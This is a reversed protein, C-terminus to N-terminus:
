LQLKKVTEYWEEFRNYQKAFFEGYKRALKTDAIHIMDKDIFFDMDSGTQFEGDLSGGGTCVVNSMLHKFCMLQRHSHKLLDQESCAKGEEILSLPPSVFKTLKEVPMTTYLKLFSRMNPINMQAVVEGRFARWQQQQPQASLAEIEEHKMNQIDYTFPSVPSLFRPCGACFQREFTDLDGQSMKMMNESHKLKLQQLVSEDMRQPHLVMCISLLAYMKEMQNNMQRLQYNRSSQFSTKTRGIYVLVDSFTRIADEYRRMMMYAFGVYYYTSVQCAPVRSLGKRNLELHQLVKIAQYYDGLQSHLRLLAILSFYGLMKYLPRSGYEGAVEDPNGGKSFVELQQNINSKQVLSHLVNLVSHVNWMKPHAQCLAMDDDSMKHINYLFTSFSQFQYVFDDMIEWLWQNPLDLSVPGQSSLIYNFLNVYNYYSSFRDDLTVENSTTATAYIQRYYLEKYIIILLEDDTLIEVIEPANPPPLKNDYQDMLNVLSREYINQMEALNGERIAQGLYLLNLHMAESMVYKHPELQYLGDDDDYYEEDYQDNDM